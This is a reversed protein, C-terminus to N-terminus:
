SQNVSTPEITSARFRVCVSVAFALAEKFRRTLRNDADAHRAAAWVDAAYAPDHAIFRLGQLM